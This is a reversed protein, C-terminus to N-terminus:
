AARLPCSHRLFTLQGRCAAAFLFARHISGGEDSAAQDLLRQAADQFLAELGQAGLVFRFGGAGGRL